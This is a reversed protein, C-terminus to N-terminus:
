NIRSIQTASLWVYTFARRPPVKNGTVSTSSPMSTPNITIGSGMLTIAASGATNDIIFQKGEPASPPTLTITITTSPTAVFYNFNDAIFTTSTSGSFFTYLPYTTVTPTTGRFAFYGIVFLIIIVFIIIAIIWGWSHDGDADDHYYDNHYGTHGDM